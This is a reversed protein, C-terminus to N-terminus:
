LGLDQALFEDAVDRKNHEIFDRVTFYDAALAYKRLEDGKADLIEENTYLGQKRGTAVIQKLVSDSVFDCAVIKEYPTLGEMQANDVFEPEALKVFAGLLKDIDDPSVGLNNINRVLADVEGSVNNWFGSELNPVSMEKIAHSLDQLNYDIYSDLHVILGKECAIKLETISRTVMIIPGIVKQGHKEGQYASKFLGPRKLLGLIVEDLIIKQKDTAYAALKPFLKSGDLRNSTKEVMIGFLDLNADVVDSSEAQTLDFWDYFLRVSGNFSAAYDLLRGSFSPDESARRTLEKTLEITRSFKKPLDAFLEKETLDCYQLSERYKPHSLITTRWDDYVGLILNQDDMSFKQLVPKGHGIVLGCQIIADRLADEFTEDGVQSPTNVLFNHEPAEATLYDIIKATFSQPAAQLHNLDPTTM